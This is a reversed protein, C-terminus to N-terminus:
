WLSGPFYKGKEQKVISPLQFLPKYDTFYSLFREM